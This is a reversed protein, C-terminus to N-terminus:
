TGALLQVLNVPVESAPIKVSGTIITNGLTDIISLTIHSASPIAVDTAILKVPLSKDILAYPQGDVIPFEMAFPIVLSGDPLVVTNPLFAHLTGQLLSGDLNYFKGTIETFYSM